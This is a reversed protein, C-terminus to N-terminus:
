DGDSEEPIGGGSYWCLALHIKGGVGKLELNSIGECANVCAVIRALNAPSTTEETVGCSEMEGVVVWDGGADRVNPANIIWPTPSHESM